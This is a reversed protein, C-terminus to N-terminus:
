TQPPQKSAHCTPQTSDPRKFSDMEPDLSQDAHKNRCHRKMNFKTSYKKGCVDCCHPPINVRHCGHLRPQYRDLQKLRRKVKKQRKGLYLMSDRPKKSQICNLTIGMKTPILVQNLDSWLCHRAHIIPTAELDIVQAVRGRQSLLILESM